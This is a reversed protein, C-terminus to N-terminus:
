AHAGGPTPRAPQDTRLRPDVVLYLVDVIFNIAVFIAAVVMLFATMVPVDVSDVSQIFLLGMGPWQFVTETVIAFAILTGIQLGIITIVPILTNKLAHGFNISRRRLGRARAFKIYDTRLVELMEARVLRMILTLQVLSLSLAPMIISQWGSLTLLGTTWGGIMVTEGRGYSPLWGLNVSFIHILQVGIVFTPISVGILSTALFLRSLWSSPHLATYAGLPIGLAIALISAVLALEFTAPFKDGIMELVPQSSSYSLGFDGALADGLYRLYQIFFPDDLGLQEVMRQRDAPDVDLGVISAVPDGIFQIMSFSILGVVLMVLAAHFLRRLFFALM